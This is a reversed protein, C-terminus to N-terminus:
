VGRVQGANGAEARAYKDRTWKGKSITKSANVMAHAFSEGDSFCCVSSGDDIRYARVTVFWDDDGRQKVTLSTFEYDVSRNAVLAFLNSMRAALLQELLIDAREKDSAAERNNKSM